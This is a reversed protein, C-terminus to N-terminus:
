QVFNHIKTGWYQWCYFGRAGIVGGLIIWTALDWLTEPNLKERRARWAAMYISALFAITLMTGYGFIKFRTGPIELLVQWMPTESRASRPTTSDNSWATRPM